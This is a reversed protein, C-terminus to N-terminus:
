REQLVAMLAPILQKKRSVVGKLPLSKGSAPVKMANEAIEKADEGYYLLDTSEELINTLMIFLM